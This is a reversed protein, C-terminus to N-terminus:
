CRSPKLRLGITQIILMYAKILPKWPMGHLIEKQMFSLKSEKSGELYYFCSWLPLM